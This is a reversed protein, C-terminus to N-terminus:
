SSLAPSEHALAYAIAQDTTLNRGAAWAAAFSAEDMQARLAAVHETYETREAPAMPSDAAERMSEASGLLCAARRPQSQAIAIFALSELEHALASRHGLEQWGLITSSYLAVAQAYHGTQREIHARESQAATVMQRDGLERYVTESEELYAKAALYDDNSASAVGLGFIFMGSIWPNGVERMLRLGEEACAVAAALDGKVTRLWVAKPSLIMAVGLKNNHARAVSLGEAIVSETVTTDGLWLTVLALMMLAEVLTGPEGIARALDAGEELASRAIHLDGQSWALTGTAWLARARLALRDRPVLEAAPPVADFRALADQVWRRGETLYGRRQWFTTLSAALRLAVEPNLELAWALAARMNDHEIELQNMVRLMEPGNLKPEAGSAFRLYYDLHLDHALPSEGSELLKDRAYQRITELLRYRTEGSEPQEEAVVLSKDVLHSLLDLAELGILAEAAEFTWGGVFVSLRCLARCEPEPLLDYSWDVLARLTQQRPLATRSGGTLLRFRDDLRTAIQEVTFLKVRAAALELALPIGDLRQCIQAIASLNHAAPVFHPQAAQAREIFLRAAESRAMSELSLPQRLDPLSLSPVRYATEGAVGLAERSSALIKLRPCAGLLTTALQACADVLHECNDLILLLTKPRLYDSLTAMLPRGPQERVDWASAVTQPLLVPDSLPALEVLWVGDSFGDLIDAALQLSLRSKGTGGPGILTMLRTVPLLRRTEALDHERGIFSTLQVPLNNPLVNLSKLSPFRAPLDSVTVQYVHEPRVLDKLRHEGLDLLNVQAPLRDQIVSATTQSVLIQGGAGAAMLRAARNLAGGYYDGERLEAEGTHLAMRVHLPGTEPWSEAQLARQGAVVAVLGDAASAFVAHLGDGTTKIVHGHNAAVAARLLEDHRALAAKMSEPYIEWLQTSGEIDTFLFTVTGSPLSPDM